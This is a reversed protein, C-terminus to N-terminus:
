NNLPKFNIIEKNEYKDHEEKLLLLWDMYMNEPMARYGLDHIRSYEETMESFIQKAEPLKLIDQPNKTNNKAMLQDFKKKKTEAKLLLANIYNPYHKLTADCCKLVFDLDATDGFKREYGKALDTMCLAITQIDNLAEMYLKNVIADLHIYGSAMLWADVPFVGSTLETNYWGNAKNQIKIYMHNPVLAIHARAGIENAIIKYLLPLSHCNGKKTNLLKSVFMNSWEKNGWIDNFDYTYPSFVVILNTDIVIKISDTIISFISANKSVEERDPLNYILTRSVVVQKALESVLTIQKEFQEQDLKNSFYANEVIFVAEKLSASCTEDLMCNLKQFAQEYIEQETQSFSNLCIATLLITLYKKM